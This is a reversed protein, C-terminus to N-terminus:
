EVVTAFSPSVIAFGEPTADPPPFLQLALIVKLVPIPRLM